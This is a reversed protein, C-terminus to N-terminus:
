GIGQVNDSLEAVLRMMEARAPDRRSLVERTREAAEALAAKAAKKGEIAVALEADLEAVEAELQDLRAVKGPDKV